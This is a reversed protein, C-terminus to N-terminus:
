LCQMLGDAAVRGGPIRASNEVASRSGGDSKTTFIAGFFSDAMLSASFAIVLGACLRVVARSSPRCQKTM